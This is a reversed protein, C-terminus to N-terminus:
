QCSPVHGTNSTIKDFNMAREVKNSELHTLVAFTLAHIAWKLKTTNYRLLFSAIRTGPLKSLHLCVLFHTSASIIILLSRHISFMLFSRMLLGTFDSVKFILCDNLDLTVNGQKTNSDHTNASCHTPQKEKEQKLDLQDAQNTTVWNSSSWFRSCTNVGAAQSTEGLLAKDQSSGTPLLLM